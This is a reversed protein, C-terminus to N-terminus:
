AFVVLSRVADDMSPAHVNAKIVVNAIANYLVM